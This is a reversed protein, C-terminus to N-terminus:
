PSLNGAMRSAAVSVAGLPAEKKAVLVLCGGDSLRVLVVTGTGDELIVRNLKERPYSQVLGHLLPYLQDTGPPPGEKANATGKVEGAPSLVALSVVFENAALLEALRISLTSEEPQQTQEQAKRREEEMKMEDHLKLAQMLARHLDLEITRENSTKDAEFEFTGETWGIVRVLADIGVFDDLVAHVIAGKDYFLTASRENSTITLEGTKRGSHPFQILDVIGLDALTGKLAM